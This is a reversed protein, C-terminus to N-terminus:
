QHEGSIEILRYGEKLTSWSLYARNNEGILM